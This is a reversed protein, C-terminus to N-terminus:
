TVSGQPNPGPMRGVLAGPLSRGGAGVADLMLREMQGIVVTRDYKSCAADRGNAGFQARQQSSLAVMQRVAAAMAVPDGPACIIGANAQRIVNAPDGAMAAVVPKGMALYSYTKHPVTIHFLPEDRLHLLLVSAQSLIGPMDEEPKWGAFVINGLRLQTVKEALREREIGDGVIVFRVERLDQVLRAAEVVVGLDQAPGILGGFVVCFKGEGVLQSLRFTGPETPRYQETDIWNPIVQVRSISAGREILRRRFGESIVRVRAAHNQIWATVKGLWGILRGQGAFGTAQLSDPWLDQIEVTFPIRWLKALLVAALGAPIPQIAHIVHPRPVLFPALLAAAVSFSLLNLGRRLRNQSHDLFLPVRVVNVGGVTERQWLRMRYGPYISGNPWNPFGTLVTVDHGRAQLTQALEGFIRRPEPPYWQTLLLIRMEPNADKLSATHRDNVRDRADRAM